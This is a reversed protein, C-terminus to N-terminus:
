MGERGGRQLEVETVVGVGWGGGCPVSLAARTPSIM